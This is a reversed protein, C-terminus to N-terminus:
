FDNVVMVYLKVMADDESVFGTWVTCSSPLTMAM